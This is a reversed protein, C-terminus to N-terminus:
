SRKGVGSGSRAPRERKVEKAPKDERLGLFKAQRVLGDRTFEAFGIQVVLDPRVWRAKRRIASPIDQAPPTKRERRRLKDGLAELEDDSFGTGVRGTYRLAGDENVGLLLSAFPRDKQSPSWGIVIFEQDRKCKIKLWDRGRGSKYPRDARKAIIGEYGEECLRELMTEGRTEVHDTFFVPGDPGADALLAKLADKRAHLPKKRLDRGALELLDFVFYALDENDGKLARQLSSFDSHGESDVAVIEGDLLAGDLGLGALAKAIPRFRDTWDLGSRTHIIAKGGSVSALARYGDFKVEFLWNEGQPVEDVLTALAPECFAPLVRSPSGSKSKKIPKDGAAAIADIERGSSISATSHATIESDRVAEEDDAKILLWNERKEAKGRFRVLAWRGKLREGHLEFDLKGKKLGERPDGDPEWTGRDWLLVTGAGYNGKPIRGEFTAYDVPHDETRVALRKESPDLSPGRTIAWSKLVGDLELRLDYHLRTADHKQITYRRGSRSAKRGKPEPTEEFRRRAHYESLPDAEKSKVKTM